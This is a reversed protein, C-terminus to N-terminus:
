NFKSINFYIYKKCVCSVVLSSPIVQLYIPPIQIEMVSYIDFPLYPDLQSALKTYKCNMLRQQRQILLFSIVYINNKISKQKKNLLKIEKNVNFLFYFRRFIIFKLQNNFSDILFVTQYSVHSLILREVALMLFSLDGRILKKNNKYMSRSNRHQQTTYM